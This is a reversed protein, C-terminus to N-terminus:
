SYIFIGHLDRVVVALDQDMVEHRPVLHTEEYLRIICTVPQNCLPCPRFLGRANPLAPGIQWGGLEWCDLCAIHGCNTSHKNRAEGRCILCRVVLQNMHRDAALAQEHRDDEHDREDLLEDDSLELDDWGDLPRFGEFDEDDPWAEQPLLREGQQQPIPADFEDRVHAQLLDQERRELPLTKEYGHFLHSVQDHYRSLTM